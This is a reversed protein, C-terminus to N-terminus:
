VPEGQGKLEQSIRPFIKKVYRDQSKLIEDFHGEMDLEHENM